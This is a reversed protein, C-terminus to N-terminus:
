ILGANKWEAIARIHKCGHRDRGAYYSGCECTLYGSTCDLDYALRSDSLKKLTFGYVEPEGQAPLHANYAISYTAGNIQCLGAAGAPVLECPCIPRRVMHCRFHNPKQRTSTKTAM